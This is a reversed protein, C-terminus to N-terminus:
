SPKFTLLEDCNRCDFHLWSVELELGKIKQMFGHKRAIIDARIARVDTERFHVDFANAFKHQSFGSGVTSEFPRFGRMTYEGGWVWDNVIAPGYTERLLDLVQLAERRFMMWLVMESSAQEYIDPPVLEQIQFFSCQYM